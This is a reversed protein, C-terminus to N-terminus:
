FVKIFIQYSYLYETTIELYTLRRGWTRAAHMGEM